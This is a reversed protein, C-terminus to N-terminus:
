VKGDRESPQLRRSIWTTETPGVITGSHQCCAVLLREFLERAAAYLMPEGNPFRPYNIIGVMFGEEQGGTYVYSTPTVTVCFGKDYCYQRCVQKAVGIDGAMHITYVMTPATKIELSM